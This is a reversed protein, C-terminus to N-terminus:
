FDTFATFYVEACHIAMIHNIAAKVEIAGRYFTRSPFIIVYTGHMQSCLDQLQPIPQIWAKQLGTFHEM